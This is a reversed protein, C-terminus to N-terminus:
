PHITKKSVKKPSKQHPRVTLEALRLMEKMAVYKEVMQSSKTLLIKSGCSCVAASRNAGILPNEM